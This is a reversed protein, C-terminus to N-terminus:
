RPVGSAVMRHEPLLTTREFSRSQGGDGWTVVIRVEHLPVRGLDTSGEEYPASSVQWAYGASRGAENWGQKPVSDHLASLSEAVLIAKHLHEITGVNRLAGGGARFLLGLSMGMIALAVLLELLTFGSAQRRTM